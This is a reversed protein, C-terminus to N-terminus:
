AARRTTQSWSSKVKAKVSAKLVAYSLCFRLRNNLSISQDRFLELPSTLGREKWDGIFWRHNFPETRRSPQYNVSLEDLIRLYEGFRSVDRRRSPRDRSTETHCRFDNLGDAVFELQGQRLLRAWFLWDGCYRMDTPIQIKECAERRFVVASANPVTNMYALFNEIEQHGESCFDQRWREADLQSPYLQGGHLPESRDDITRSRCYAMSARENSQLRTVLRQLLTEHAVDDSEAIWIYRGKAMAIGRSWQRFPSGSNANSTVCHTVRPRDRYQRIVDRSDDTSCDDLLIVEYDQYTQSFVSELREPLFAEHNYNPVIVSVTPRSPVPTVKRGLAQESNPKAVVQSTQHVPPAPHITQRQIRNTQQGFAQHRIAELRQITLPPFHKTIESKLIIDAFHGADVIAEGAEHNKVTEQNGHIRFDSLKEDLFVVNGVAMLRWWMELDTLQTLEPRFGGTVRLSAASIMVCSPEGIKNYGSEDILKPDSLLETGSQFAKLESWGAHLNANLEISQLCSLHDQADPQIIFGRPSFVLSVDPHAEAQSVMKQLCTPRLVDDDFLFKIWRGDAQDLCHNWNSTMTDAAHQLLRCAFSSRRIYREIIDVTNDASGNDSFVIELDRYTQAEVSDIAADLYDEGNFTPICVSVNM